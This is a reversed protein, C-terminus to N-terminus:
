YKNICVAEKKKKEMECYQWVTASLSMLCSVVHTNIDLGPRCELYSDGFPGQLVTGEVEGSLDYIYIHIYRM